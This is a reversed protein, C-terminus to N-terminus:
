ELVSADGTPDDDPLDAGAPSGAGGGIVADGDVGPGATTRIAHLDGAM